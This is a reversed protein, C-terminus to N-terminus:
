ECLVGEPCQDKVMEWGPIHEGFSNTIGTNVLLAPSIVGVKYGAARIKNCFDVDESQCVKGAPTDCFPGFEDWVDWSMLMSQSAVAYVPYVEREKTRVRHEGDIPGNFPHNYAGVVKFGYKSAEAYAEILVKLWDPRTWYVDDDSLYLYDGRGFRFDIADVAQNRAPGTGCPTSARFYRTTHHRSKTKTWGLAIEGVNENMGADRIYVTADSLDGISDLAQKLLRPRNACLMTVNVM